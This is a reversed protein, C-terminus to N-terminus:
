PTVRTPYAGELTYVAEDERSVTVSFRTISGDATKQVAIEYGDQEPAVAAGTRLAEAATQALYVGRTLRTSETSMSRAHLLLGVCVTACVTFLVLDLIVEFLFLSPAKRTYKM